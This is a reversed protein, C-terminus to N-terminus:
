KMKVVHTTVTLHPPDKKEQDGWSVTLQIERVAESIQKMVTQLYSGVGVSDAAGGGSADGEAAGEMIPIEVKKLTFHWHYDGFPDDFIGNEEEEDPFKNKAIDAEVKMQMEAMKQRALNTAVTLREGRESSLFASGQGSLLALFAGALIAVAIMIELLTFGERNRM